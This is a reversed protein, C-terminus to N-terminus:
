FVFAIGIGYFRYHQGHPRDLPGVVPGSLPTPAPAHVRVRVETRVSLLREFMSSATGQPDPLAKTVHDHWQREPKGRIHERIPEFLLAVLLAGAM